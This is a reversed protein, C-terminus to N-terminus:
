ERYLPSLGYKKETKTLKSIFAEPDENFKEEIKEINEDHCILVGTRGDTIWGNRIFMERGILTIKKGRTKQWEEEGKEVRDSKTRTYYIYPFRQEEPLEEFDDCMGDSISIISANCENDKYYKCDELDCCVKM